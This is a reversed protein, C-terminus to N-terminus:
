ANRLSVNSQFCNDIVNDTLIKLDIIQGIVEMISDRTSKLHKLYYNGREYIYKAWADKM